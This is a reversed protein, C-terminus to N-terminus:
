ETEERDRPIVFATMRALAAVLLGVISWAGIWLTAIGPLSQAASSWTEGVGLARCVPTVVLQWFLFLPLMAWQWPFLPTWALVWMLALCVVGFLPFGLIVLHYPFSRTKKAVLV